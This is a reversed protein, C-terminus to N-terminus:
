DGGSKTSRKRHDIEASFVGATKVLMIKDETSSYSVANPTSLEEQDLVKELDQMLKDKRLFYGDNEAAERLELQDFCIVATKCARAEALPMGYGEYLSLTIYFRAGSLYYSLDEDPANGLLKIADPRDKEARQLLDVIEKNKWGGAGIIVLPPLQKKKELLSLYVQVLQTFNKRPELTGVTLLYNKYSLGLPEIKKSVEQQTKYAITPRIPPLMVHDQQLGYYQKLRQATGESIPLLVNAKKLM